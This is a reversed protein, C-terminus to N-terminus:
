VLSVGPCRQLSRRRPRRREPPLPQFPKKVDAARFMVDFWAAAGPSAMGPLPNAPALAVMVAATPLSTTTVRPALDLWAAAPMPELLGLPECRGHAPIAGEECQARLLAFAERGQNRFLLPTNGWAAARRDRIEDAEGPVSATTLLRWQEREADIAAESRRAIWALTDNLGWYAEM